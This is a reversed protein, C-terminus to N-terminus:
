PQQTKAYAQQALIEVRALTTNITNVAAILNTINTEAAQLREELDHIRDWALRLSQQTEWDSINDVHPYLRQIKVVPAATLVTAAM